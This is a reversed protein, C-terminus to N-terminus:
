VRRATEALEVCVNLSEYFYDGRDLFVCSGANSVEDYACFPEGDNTNIANVIEKASSESVADSAGRVVRVARVGNAGLRAGLDDLQISDSALSGSTTFYRGGTIALRQADSARPALAVDFCAGSAGRTSVFRSSFERMGADYADRKSDDLDAEYALIANRSEPSIDDLARRWDRVETARSATPSVLTLTKAFNPRELALTTALRAGWYGHALVHAGGEEVLRLERVVTRLENLYLDLDYVEGDMASKSEGCGRQDYLFIERAGGVEGSLTEVASMYAHSVGPGDSIALVPAKKEKKAKKYDGVGRVWTKGAVLGESWPTSFAYAPALGDGFEDFYGCMTGAARTARPALAMATAVATASAGMTVARRGVRGDDRRTADREGDDDDYDANTTARAVRTARRRGARRARRRRTSRARSDVARAARPALAM